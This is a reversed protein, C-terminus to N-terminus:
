KKKKPNKVLILEERIYRELANKGGQKKMLNLVDVVLNISVNKLPKRM